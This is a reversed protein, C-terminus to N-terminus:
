KIIVTARITLLQGLKYCCKSCNAIIFSGWNTVINVSIQLLVFSGLNTVYAQRLKHYMHIKTISNELEEQLRQSKPHHFWVRQTMHSMSLTILHSEFIAKYGGGNVIAM